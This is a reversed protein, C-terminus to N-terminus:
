QGGFDNGWNLGWGSDATLWHTFTFDYKQYCTIGSRTSEVEARLTAGQGHGVAAEPFTYTDATIGTQQVILTNASDYIRINYTVGTEPGVSVDEHAVLKDQQAIRDRHAWTFILDGRVSSVEAYRQGNLKLNGPPYPMNQRAVIEITSTPAANAQLVSSTTQTRFQVAIQMGESFESPDAGFYDDYVWVIDNRLHAAPLTDVCGRRITVLKTGIDYSVVEIIEDGIIAAMGPEILDTDENDDFRLTTDFQGLPQSLVVLPTFAATNVKRYTNTIGPDDWVQYSLSFINPKRAVAVFTGSDAPVQALDAPSLQRVLDRYTAETTRYVAPAVPTRNPPVYQGPEAEVYTTSPLGFIDQVATIQFSGEEYRGAQIKGARLIMNEIGLQPVSISFVDTPALKAARRDLTLTFRKLPTGNSKLDRMAVRMALDATPIAPYATTVSYMAGVARMNGVNQARVQKDEDTIPDHYTVIQENRSTDSSNGDQSINLLGSTYDFHPITAPDYDSRILRLTLKATKRDFYIAGGIHNLVQQVFADLDDQRNWRICLGFCESCLKNAADTFSQEDILERPFGRGWERNTACEYIIHAPNMAKITQNAMQITAKEPYFVPGDWGQISRRVRFKWAKPYPNMACILGDFFVTFVGRFAPVIGGLMAALRPNVQQTAEGMMIDANGQIGGEKKDGGFLEPSNIYIQGSTSVSGAWATLDGVTIAVLEDVPGRCLAAHIGFYYRYGIVTDGSKGGGGM